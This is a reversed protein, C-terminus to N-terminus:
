TSLPVLNPNCINSSSMSQRVSHWKVEVVAALFMRNKDRNTAVRWQERQKWSPPQCPLALLALYVKHGGRSGQWLLESSSVVQTTESAWVLLCDNPGKQGHSNRCVVSTSQIVCSFSLNITREAMNEFKGDNWFHYHCTFLKLFFYIYKFINTLAVSIREDVIVIIHWLKSM